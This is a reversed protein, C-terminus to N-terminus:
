SLWRLLRVRWGSTNLHVCRRESDLSLYLGNEDLVRLGLLPLRPSPISGPYVALGNQIELRYPADLAPLRREGRRNRHLWLTAARREVPQRNAFLSGLLPLSSRAIGAWRRLHNEGISFTYSNGTDLIVPFVPASVPSSYQGFLQVSAWVVIQYPRVTVSGQPFSLVEPRDLYPLDDLLRAM